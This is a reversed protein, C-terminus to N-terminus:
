LRPVGDKKEKVFMWLTMFVTTIITGIIVSVAVATHYRVAWYLLGLGMWFLCLDRLLKLRWM